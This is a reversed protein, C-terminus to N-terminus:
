DRDSGKELLDTEPAYGGAEGEDRFGVGVHYLFAKEPGKFFLDDLAAYIVGYLLHPHGDGPNRSGVIFGPPQFLQAEHLGISYRKLKVRIRNVVFLTESSWPHRCPSLTEFYIQAKPGITTNKVM